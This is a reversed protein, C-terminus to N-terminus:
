ERQGKALLSLLEGDRIAALATRYDQGAEAKRRLRDAHAELDGLRTFLSSAEIMKSTREARVLAQPLHSQRHRHVASTTLRYHEAINRFPKAEILERDIAPRQPHDCVSCHRSM